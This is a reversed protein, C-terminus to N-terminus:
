RQTRRANAPAPTALMGAVVDYTADGFSDASVSPDWAHQLIFGQIVSLLVGAAADADVEAAVDGDRQGIAIRERLAARLGALGDQMAAALDPNRLAESWAQVALRTKADAEELEVMARPISAMLDPIPQHTRLAEAFLERVTAMAELSIARVIEDKGRFYRYVGGPSLRTATIVDQMSTRHFGDAAFCSAAASLIQQRRASRYEDSVKAM